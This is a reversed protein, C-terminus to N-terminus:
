ERSKKRAKGSLAAKYWWCLHIPWPWPPGQAAFHRCLHFRGCVTVFRGGLHLVSCHLRSCLICVIWFAANRNRNWDPHRAETYSPYPAEDTDLLGKNWRDLDAYLITGGVMLYQYCFLCTSYYLVVQEYLLLGAAMLLGEHMSIDASVSPPSTETGGSAHSLAPAWPLSQCLRAWEIWTCMGAPSKGGGTCHVRRYSLQYVGIISNFLHVDRTASGSAMCDGELWSCICVSETHYYTSTALHVYYTTILIQLFFMNYRMLLEILHGSCTHFFYKIGWIQIVISAMKVPHQRCSANHGM